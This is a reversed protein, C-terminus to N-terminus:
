GATELCLERIAEAFHPNSAPADPSRITRADPFAAVAQDFGEDTFILCGEHQALLMPAAVKRLMDGIPQTENGLSEWVPEMLDDDEFRDLMQQAVDDDVAGRTMQVIGHRIFEGHSQRVLQLMAAWIERSVAPHEGDMEYSLSAHGMAIGEVSGRRELAILAATANAWGDSVLFFRDWGHRDLEELGRRVSLARLGLEGCEVAAREQDSIPEEGVGPPDYSAVDAWQELQPRIGWELETFAPVLLLRPRPM